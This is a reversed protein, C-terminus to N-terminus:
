KRRRNKRLFEKIKLWAELNPKAKGIFWDNVRQRTVGLMRAIDSQSIDKEGAWTKLENILDDIEKETVPASDASVSM